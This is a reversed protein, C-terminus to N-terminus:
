RLVQNNQFYKNSLWEKPLAEKLTNNLKGKGVESIMLGKAVSQDLVGTVVADTAKWRYEEDLHNLIMFEYSTNTSEKVQGRIIAEATFDGNGIPILKFESVNVNHVTFKEVIEKKM